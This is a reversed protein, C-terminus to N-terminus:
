LDVYVVEVLDNQAAHRVSGIGVGDEVGVVRKRREKQRVRGVDRRTGLIRVQEEDRCEAGVHLLEQLVILMRLLADHAEERAKPASAPALIVDPKNRGVTASAIQVIERRRAVADDERMVELQVLRNRPTHPATPLSM